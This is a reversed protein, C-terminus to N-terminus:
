KMEFAMLIKYRPYTQLRIYLYNFFVKHQNTCLVFFVFASMCFLSLDQARM